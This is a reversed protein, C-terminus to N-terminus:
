PVVLRESERTWAAVTEDVWRAAAAVAAARARGLHVLRYIPRVATADDAVVFRPDRRAVAEPLMAEAGLAAAAEILADLRDTRAAVRASPRLRDLLRMEPMGDLAESYRVLPPAEGNPPAGIARCLRFRTEGIKKISAADDGTRGLRVAIDTERRDFRANRDDAHLAVVIGPHARAFAGLAPALVRALVFGVSDVRALGRMEAEARRLAALAVTADEDMAQLRDLVAALAPTPALRGSVRDFLSAGIRRELAALRRAATTQDVGLARAAGSLTEAEAIRRALELDAWGPEASM